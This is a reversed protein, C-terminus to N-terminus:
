SVVGARSIETHIIVELEAEDLGAIVDFPVRMGSARLRLSERARRLSVGERIAKGRKARCESWDDEHRWKMRPRAARIVGTLWHMGRFTIGAVAM